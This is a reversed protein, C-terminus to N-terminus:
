NSLWRASRNALIPLDQTEFREIMERNPQNEMNRGVSVVVQNPGVMEIWQNSCSGLEGHNGVMLIPASPEIPKELLESEVEVGAGGMFLMAAGERGLRIVVSGDNAKKYKKDPSPHLVEWEVGGPWEGIEGRVVSKLEIGSDEIEKILPRYYHVEKLEPPIWIEEIPVDKILASLGGIHDGDAHTLVVTHLRDVGRKRLHRQVKWNMYHPGVDIMMDKTGPLDVFVANGHGVDLVDIYVKDNKLEFYGGWLLSLGTLTTVLRRPKGSLGVLSFLGIYWVAAWIWGPSRVFGHGMPIQALRDIWEVLLTIFVRNAHNFIEVLVPHIFSSILTLCGTLVIVFAGPIVLLNGLLAVPSFLNFYKATLPASVMWAIVSTVVIGAMWRGATLYTKKWGPEPGIRYEDPKFFKMVPASLPRYFVILGTVVVFSFIFGPSLLQRPDIALVIIAAVALSSPGDPRRRFLFASGYVVAMVWARLASVKLGTM